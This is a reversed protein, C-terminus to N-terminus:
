SLSDRISFTGLTKILNFVTSQSRFIDVLFCIYIFSYKFTISSFIVVLYTLFRLYQVPIVNTPNNSKPSVNHLILHVMSTVVTVLYDPAFFFVIRSLLYRPSSIKKWM